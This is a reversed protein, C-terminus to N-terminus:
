PIGGRDGVSAGPADTGASPGSAAEVDGADQFSEPGALPRPPAGATMCVYDPKEPINERNACEGLLRSCEAQTPAQCVQRWAANRRRRIWGFWTM